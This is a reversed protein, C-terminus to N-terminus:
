LKCIKKHLTWNSKQCEKSCYKVKYCNSCSSLENTEISCNDCKNLINKLRNYLIRYKTKLISRNEKDKEDKIEDETLDNNKGMIRIINKVEDMSIDDNINTMLHSIIYCDGYLPRNFLASCLHNRVNNSKENYLTLNYKFLSISYNNGSLKNSDMIINDNNYIFSTYKQDTDIKVGYHLLNNILINYVDSISVNINNMITNDNFPIYIKFLIANGFIAVKDTNLISALKNIEGTQKELVVLQYIYDKEIYCTLTDATDLNTMNLYKIVDNKFDYIQKIQTYDKILDNFQDFSFYDFKNVISKTYNFNFDELSFNNPEILLIDFM